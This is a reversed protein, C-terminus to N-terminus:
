GWLSAPYTGADIMARIGDVVVQKDEPFTVGYWKGDSQMVECKAGGSQIWEDVSTPILYESKMETGKEELFSVLGTELRDFADPTFGWFNMSVLDDRSLTVPNGEHEGNITSDPQEEIKHCERVKALFGDEVQSVGRSVGGNDSLTKLLEFAVMCYHNEVGALAVLKDHMLEFARLGYFDDANIVAFPEKIADKAMLIAHSTGWPKVRGEPVAFGEPLMDLEQFVYETEINGEFHPELAERFDAEIGKRIIFVVKGFGAKKADYVSYDLVVEGSPGIPDIQKLGGYRSGMGAALVLLTPKVSM